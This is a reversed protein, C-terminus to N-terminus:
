WLLPRRPRTHAIASEDSDAEPLRAMRLLDALLTADRVHNKMRRHEYSAILQKM